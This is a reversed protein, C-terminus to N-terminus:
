GGDARGRVASFPSPLLSIIWATTTAKCKLNACWRRPSTVEVQQKEGDRHTFTISVLETDGGCIPCRHNPDRKILPKVGMSSLNFRRRYRLGHGLSGGARPM